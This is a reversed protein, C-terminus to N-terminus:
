QAFDENLWSLVFEYKFYNFFRKKFLPKKKDKEYLNFYNELKIM